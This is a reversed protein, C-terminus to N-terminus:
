IIRDSLNVNNTLVDQLGTMEVLGVGEPRFLELTSRSRIFTRKISNTVEEIMYLPKYIINAIVTSRLKDENSLKAEHPMDHVDKIDPSYLLYAKDNDIAPSTLIVNKMFVNVHINMAHLNDFGSLGEKYTPLSVAFEQLNELVAATRIGTLIYQPVVGYNLYIFRSVVSFRPVITQYISSLFGPSLTGKTDRMIQFDVQEYTNMTKMEPEAMRLLTSIDHDRNLLTQTKIAESINKVLDINYIDKYDQILESDLEFEFDEKVDVDIDWGEMRLSIKVRGIDGSRASFMVLSDLHNISYISGIKGDFSCNFHFIGSDWNINGILKGTILNNNNDLFEFEKVTQGRSDPRITLPCTVNYSTLNETIKVSLEELMFFRKNIVSLKSNVKDPYSNSLAFLNNAKGSLLRLKEPESRILYRARPFPLVKESGDSNSVKATLRMKPFSLIPKDTYHHIIAKYLIDESYIDALIPFFTVAFGTATDSSMINSSEELLCIREHEFLEKLNPKCDESLGELITNTFTDFHEKNNLFSIINKKDSFMERHENIYKGYNDFIIDSPKKM